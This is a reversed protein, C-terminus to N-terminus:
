QQVVPLRARGNVCLLLIPVTRRAYSGSGDLPDIILESWVPNNLALPAPDVRVTFVNPITGGAPTVTAWEADGGGVQAAYELGFAGVITFTREQPELPEECPDFLFVAPNPRVDLSPTVELTVFISVPQNTLDAEESRLRIVTAYTGPALGRTNFLVSLTAPTEAAAGAPDTGVTVWDLPLGPVAEVSYSFSVGAVSSSTGPVYADILVKSGEGPDTQVIGQGLALSIDTRDQGNVTLIPQSDFSGGDLNGIRITRSNTSFEVEQFTNNNAPDTYIRIRNDRIIVVEDAFDGDVNGGAGAQYQNDTNNLFDEIISGGQEDRSFLRPRNTIDAPLSRLMFAEDGGSFEVDALFLFETPPFFQENYRDQWRSGDYRFVWFNSIGPGANRIALLNPENRNMFNGFLAARWPLSGNERELLAENLLSRYVFLKGEEDDVLAIEDTGENDLNGVDMWTWEDQYEKQDVLTIWSRGTIPDGASQLITLQYDANDDNAIADNIRSGFIIEDQPRDRTLDGAGVLTPRGPVDRVYLTAWPIGNIYGDVAAGTITEVVPDYIILQGDDMGGRVGIIELGDDQNVNGLAVDTFGGVPSFWRIESGYSEGANFAPDYVRIFGGADIVVIEEADDGATQALLPESQRAAQAGWWILAFLLGILLPRRRCDRVCVFSFGQM